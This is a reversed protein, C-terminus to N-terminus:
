RVIAAMCRGDCAVLKSLTEGHGYGIMDRWLRLGLISVHM